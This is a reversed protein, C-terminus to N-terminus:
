KASQAAGNIASGRGPSRRMLRARGGPPHSKSFAAKTEEWFPTAWKAPVWVTYRREPPFIPEFASDRLIQDVEPGTWSHRKVRFEVYGALVLDDCTAHKGPKM